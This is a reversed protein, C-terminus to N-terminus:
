ITDNTFNEKKGLGALLIRQASTGTTPIISLKGFVGGMDNISQKM